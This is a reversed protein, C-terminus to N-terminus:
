GALREFENSDGIIFLKTEKLVQLILHDQTEKRKLFEEQRFVHPNIERGLREAVGSLLGTVARLGIGGIIMLDIDSKATEEERAISGFVFAWKIREDKLAQQLVDALGVTKLVIRHIEIYLPHTRSAEYYVRNGDKRCTVLGLRLLKRLEQQVTGITLGSRRKIERTHLPSDSLGFLLRFIEVRIKSSLIETLIDM